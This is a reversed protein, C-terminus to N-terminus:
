FYAEIKSNSIQFQIHGLKENFKLKKKLHKYKKKMQMHKPILSKYIRGKSPWISLNHEKTIRKM